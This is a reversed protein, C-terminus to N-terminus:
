MGGRELLPEHAGGEAPVTTGAAAPAPAPDGQAFFQTLPPTVYPNQEPPVSAGLEEASVSSVSHLTYSLPLILSLSFTICM